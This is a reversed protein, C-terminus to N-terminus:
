SYDETFVFDFCVYCVIVYLSVPYVNGNWFTTSPAYHAFVSGFCSQFYAPCVRFQADGGHRIAFCEESRWSKEDKNVEVSKERSSTGNVTLCKGKSTDWPELKGFEQPRWPLEFKLKM